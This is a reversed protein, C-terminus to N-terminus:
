ELDWFFSREKIGAVDKIVLELRKAPPSPKPFVITIERHHYRGKNEVQTPQYNKGSDDRLVSLTKLDYAEIHVGSHSDLIVQFRTEGAHQSHLYTVDVTVGGGSNTRTLGAAAAGLGQDIGLVGLLLVNTALFLVLTVAKLQHAIEM